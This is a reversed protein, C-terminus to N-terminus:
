ASPGGDVVASIAAGLAPRTKGNAPSATHIPVEPDAFVAAYIIPGGDKGSIEQTFDHRDRWEASRRNKLWFIIATTDGNKAKDYLTKVIIDDARARAENFRAQAEPHKRGYQYLAERTVGVLHAALAMDAGAQLAGVVREISDPKLKNPTAM